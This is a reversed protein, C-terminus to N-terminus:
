KKQMGYRLLLYHIPQLFDNTASLPHAANDIWINKRNKRKRQTFTFVNLHMKTCVRMYQM